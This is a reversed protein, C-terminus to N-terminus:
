IPIKIPVFVTTLPVRSAPIAKFTIIAPRSTSPTTRYGIVDTVSRLKLERTIISKIRIILHMVKGFRVGFAANNRTRGVPIGLPAFWAITTSAIEAADLKISASRWAPNVIVTVDARSM